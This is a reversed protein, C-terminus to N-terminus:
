AEEGLDRIEAIIESETKLKAVQDENLQAGSSKKEKIETIAKLKKRLAKVRKSKEEASLEAAPAPAPAPASAPAPVPAPAAAPKKKAANNAGASAGPVSTAATAPPAALGPIKRAPPAYAAAKPASAPAAITTPAAPKVKGVAGVPGARESKILDALAGTSGRPRYPEPKPKVAAATSLNTTSGDAGDAAARKPSQGRNPYVGPAAPRWQVSFLQEQRIVCIPGIGNYKFIKFGNDVNMRPTLISTLFYRSDPSWAYSVTCHSDNTGSYIDLGYLV